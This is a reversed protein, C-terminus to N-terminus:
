LENMFEHPCFPREIESLAFLGVNVNSVGAEPFGSSGSDSGWMPCSFRLPEDAIIPQSELIMSYDLDLGMFEGAEWSDQVMGPSQPGIFQSDIIDELVM